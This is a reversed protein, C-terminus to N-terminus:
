TRVESQDLRVSRPANKPVHARCWVKTPMCRIGQVTLWGRVYLDPMRKAATDVLKESTGLEHAIAKNTMGRRNEPRSLLERIRDSLREGSM